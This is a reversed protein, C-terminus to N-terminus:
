SQFGRMALRQRATLGDESRRVNLQRTTAFKTKTQEDVFLSRFKSSVDRGAGPM